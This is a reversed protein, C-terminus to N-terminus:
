IPRLTADCTTRLKKRGIGYGVRGPADASPALRERGDSAFLAGSSSIRAHARCCLRTTMM